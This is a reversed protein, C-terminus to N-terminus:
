LRRTQYTRQLWRTLKDRRWWLLSLSLMLYLAPEMWGSKVGWWFHVPILLATLYVWNHLGQWHRGLRRQWGKTSTVALLLLILWSLMGLTIFGREIIEAGIQGWALQLDLLLWVGLHLSAYAFCWLGLLRRVRILAGNKWWRALPSVCLTLLLLRLAWGGLFQLLEPVPDASFRGAPVAWLLWLLPLAAACHLAAKLWPLARPTLKM